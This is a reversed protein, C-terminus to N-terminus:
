GCTPNSSFGSAKHLLFHSIGLELWQSFSLFFLLLFCLFLNFLISFLTLCSFLKIVCKKNFCQTINVQLYHFTGLSGYLLMLMLCYLGNLFIPHDAMFIWLITSYESSFNCVLTLDLPPTLLTAM